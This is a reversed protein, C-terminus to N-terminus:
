YFGRAAELDEKTDIGRSAKLAPELWIKWGAELARLQELKETAELPSVGLKIFELLKARPFAYVGLHQWFGDPIYGREKASRDYPIASRSFYLAFGLHSRVAKVVNPDKALEPRNAKFVLTGMDLSPSHAVSTMLNMLSQTDIFPEDGQVNLIYPEDRRLAVEAARDTGSEHNVSTLEAQYGHSTVVDIIEASDTAVVVKAGRESLPALNEVVRVVM